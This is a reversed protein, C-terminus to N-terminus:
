WLPDPAAFLCKYGPMKSVIDALSFTSFFNLLSLAKFSFLAHGLFPSSICTVYQGWLQSFPLKWCCPFCTILCWPSIKKLLLPAMKPCHFTGLSSWLPYFTAWILLQNRLCGVKFSAGRTQARAGEEWPRVQVTYSVFQHNTSALWEVQYSIVARPSLHIFCIGSFLFDLLSSSNGPWVSAYGRSPELIM